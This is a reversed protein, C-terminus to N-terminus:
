KGKTLLRYIILFPYAAVFLFGAILIIFVPEKHLTDGSVVFAGALLIIGVCVYIQFFLM